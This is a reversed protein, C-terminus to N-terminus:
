LYDELVKEMESNSLMDTKKNNYGKKKLMRKFMQYLVYKYFPPEFPYVRINFFINQEGGRLLLSAKGQFMVFIPNNGNIRDNFEKVIRYNDPSRELSVMFHAM